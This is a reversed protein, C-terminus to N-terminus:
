DVNGFQSEGMDGWGHPFMLDSVHGAESMGLTSSEEWRLNGNIAKWGDLAKFPRGGLGGEVSCKRMVAIDGEESNKDSM